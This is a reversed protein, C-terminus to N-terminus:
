TAGLLMKDVFHLFNLDTLRNYLPISKTRFLKHKLFEINYFEKYIRENQLDRFSIGLRNPDNSSYFQKFMDFLHYNNDNKLLSLDLLNISIYMCKDNPSNYLKQSLASLLCCNDLYDPFNNKVIQMKEYTTNINYLSERGYFDATLYYKIKELQTDQIYEYLHPCAQKVFKEILLEYKSLYCTRPELLLIYLDSSASVMLYDEILIIKGNNYKINSNRYRLYTKFEINCSDKEYIVNEIQKNKCNEILDLITQKKIPLNINM